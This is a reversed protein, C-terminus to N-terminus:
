KGRSSITCWGPETQGPQLPVRKALIPSSTVSTNSFIGARKFTMRWYGASASSGSM